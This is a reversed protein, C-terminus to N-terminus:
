KKGLGSLREALRRGEDTSLVKRLLSQLQAADGSRLAREAEGADLMTELRKGDESEALRRLQEPDKGKLLERGLEEMDRM